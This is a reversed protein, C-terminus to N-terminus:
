HQDQSLVPLPWSLELYALVQPPVPDLPLQLVLIM